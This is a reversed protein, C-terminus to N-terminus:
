AIEETHGYAMITMFAQRAEPEGGAQGKFQEKRAQECGYDPPVDGSAAVVKCSSIAGDEAFTLFMVQRGILEDGPHLRGSDVRGGPSFRREYTVKSYTGLPGKGSTQLSAAMAQDCEAATTEPFSTEYRCSQQKGQNDVTVTIKEWWPTATELLPAPTSAALAAAFLALM